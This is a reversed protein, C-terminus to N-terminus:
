SINCLKVPVKGKCINCYQTTKIKNNGILFINERMKYAIKVYILLLLNKIRKEVYNKCM